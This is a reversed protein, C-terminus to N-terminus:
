PTWHRSLEAIMATIEGAQPAIFQGLAPPGPWGADVVEIGALARPESARPLVHFHVDRDVMMLMMWNIREYSVTARLMREVSAVVRGLDAFGEPSVEAFATVPEKCIVVLSGATPQEPRLAVAWHATEAVRTAPWGFKKMTANIESSM